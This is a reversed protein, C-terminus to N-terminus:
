SFLRLLPEEGQHCFNSTRSINSINLGFNNWILEGLEDEMRSKLSGGRNQHSRREEPTNRLTSHYDKVSTEPYCIPGMNLPRPDNDRFTPLPNGKSAAYYGLRVCIEDEM